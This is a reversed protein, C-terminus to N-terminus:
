DARSNSKAQLATQKSPDTPPTGNASAKTSITPKPRMFHEFAYDRDVTSKCPMNSPHTSIYPQLSITLFNQPPVSSLRDDRMMFGDNSAWTQLAVFLHYCTLPATNRQRFPTPRNAASANASCASGGSTSPSPRRQSCCGTRTEAVRPQRASNNEHNHSDGSHINMMKQSLHTPLLLPQTLLPFPLPLNLIYPHLPSPSRLSTLRAATPPPSIFVIQRMARSM